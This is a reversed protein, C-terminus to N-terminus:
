HYIYRFLMIRLSLLYKCRLYRQVVSKMLSRLSM